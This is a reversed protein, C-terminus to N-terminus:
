HRKSKLYKRRKMSRTRETQRLERSLNALVKTERYEVGAEQDAWFNIHGSQSKIKPQPIARMREEREEVLVDYDDARGRRKKKPHHDTTDPTEAEEM